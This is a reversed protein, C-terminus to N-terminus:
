SVSKYKAQGFYFVPILVSTNIKYIKHCLELKNRQKQFINLEYDSDMLQDYPIKGEFNGNLIYNSEKLATLIYSNFQNYTISKCDVMLRRISISEKYKNLESELVSNREMTNKSGNQEQFSEFMPYHILLLGEDSDNNFVSLMKNLASIKDEYSMTKEQFDFDFVLYKTGFKVGRIKKKQVEPISRSLEIARELEIDFDYEKMEQFLSYINCGFPVLQVKENLDMFNRNLSDFFDMEKNVGEVLVLIRESMSARM